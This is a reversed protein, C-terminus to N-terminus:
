HSEDAWYKMGLKLQEDADHFFYETVEVPSTIDKNLGDNFAIHVGDRASTQHCQACTVRNFNIATANQRKPDRYSSVALDDILRELQEKRAGTAKELETRFVDNDYVSSYYGVDVGDRIIRLPLLERAENRDRTLTGFVWIGSLSTSFALQEIPRASTFDTIFKRLLEQYNEAQTERAHTLEDVRSLFDLHQARQTRKDALRDVVDWKLHLYLQEFPRDRHRPDMLQYVFRIQPIVRLNSWAIDDQEEYPKLSMAVLKFNKPNSVDSVVDKINEIYLGSTYINTETVDSLRFTDHGPEKEPDFDPTPRGSLFNLVKQYEDDRLLSTLPFAASTEPTAEVLLHRPLRFYSLGLQPRSDTMGYDFSHGKPYYWLSNDRLKDLDYKPWDPYITQRIHFIVGSKAEFRELPQQPFDSLYMADRYAEMFKVPDFNPDPDNARHRGCEAGPRLRTYYDLRLVMVTYGEDRLKKVAADPYETLSRSLYAADVRCGEPTEVTAYHDIHRNNESFFAPILQAYSGQHGKQQMPYVPEAVGLGADLFEYNFGPQPLSLLSEFYTSTDYVSGPRLTVNNSELIKARTLSRVTALINPSNAPTAKESTSGSTTAALFLAPILTKIWAAKM